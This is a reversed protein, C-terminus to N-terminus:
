RVIAALRAGILWGGKITWVSSPGSRRSASRLESPRSRWSGGRVAPYYMIGDSASPTPPSGPDWILPLHSMRAPPLDETYRDACLEWMGGHMDHLGFPNPPYQAVIWPDREERAESSGEQSTSHRYLVKDLDIADGFSYMSTTGARCAYEWEVEFPLRYTVGAPAGHRAAPTDNNLQQIGLMLNGGSGASHAAPATTVRPREMGSWHSRSYVGGGVEQLGMLRGDEWVGWRPVQCTLETSQLYYPKVIQVRIRAEERGLARRAEEREETSLAGDGHTKLYEHWAEQLVLLQEDATSGLLGDGDPVLLFRQGLANTFEAPLNWRRAADAQAAQAATPPFSVFDAPLSAVLRFGTQDDSRGIPLVGRAACSEDALISAWSGGRTVTARSPVLGGPGRRHDLYTSAGTVAPLELLTLALSEEPGTPDWRDGLGYLGYFDACMESVNGIMDYLGWASAGYDGVPSTLAHGDDPCANEGWWGDLGLRALGRADLLNAPVKGDVEGLEGWPYRVGDRGACAAREWESETPLRFGLDLGRSRAWEVEAHSTMWEAFRCADDRRVWVAPHDAMAFDARWTSTLGQERRLPPPHDPEMVRVQRNTVEHIGLYYPRRLTVGHVPTDAHLWSGRQFLGPPVLVFRMTPGGPLLAEFAVPIGLAAALAIQESSVVAWAPTPYQNEAQAQGGRLAALM